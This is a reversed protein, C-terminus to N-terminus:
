NRHRADVRGHRHGAGRDRGRRSRRRWRGRAWLDKRLAQVSPHELAAARIVAIVATVALLGVEGGIDDVLLLLLLQLVIDIDAVCLLRRYLM